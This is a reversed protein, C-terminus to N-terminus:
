PGSEAAARPLISRPLIRWCQPSMRQRTADIWVPATLAWSTMRISADAPLDVWSAVGKGVVTPDELGKVDQGVDIVVRVPALDLPHAVELFAAVVQGAMDKVAALALQALV